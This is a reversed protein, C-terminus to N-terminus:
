WLYWGNMYTFIGYMSEIPIPIHMTYWTNPLQLRKKVSIPPFPTAVLICHGLPKNGGEFKSTYRFCKKRKPMRWRQIIMFLVRHTHTYLVYMDFLFMFCIVSVCWGIMSKLGGLGFFPESLRGPGQFFLKFKIKGVLYEDDRFTWLRNAM